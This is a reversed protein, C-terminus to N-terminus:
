VYSGSTFDTAFRRTGNNRYIDGFVWCACRRRHDLLVMPRIDSEDGCTVDRLRFFNVGATVQDATLVHM